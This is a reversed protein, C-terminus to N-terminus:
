AVGDPALIRALEVLYGSMIEAEAHVLSDFSFVLDISRDAAMSLSTGDNVHAHIHPEDAFRQRCHDIAGQAIDVIILEDCLDKLFHTWRGYGPAIELIRGAPLYGQLRPFLTTWWQYTVGGWAESWEDGRHSWDYTEGWVALNQSLSPM